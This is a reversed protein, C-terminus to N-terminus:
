PNPKVEKEILQKRETFINEIGRSNNKVEKELKAMKLFIEKHTLTHERM